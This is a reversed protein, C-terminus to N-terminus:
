KLKKIFYNEIYDVFSINAFDSCIQVGLDDWCMIVLNNNNAIKLKLM